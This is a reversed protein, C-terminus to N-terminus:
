SIKISGEEEKDQRAIVEQFETFALALGPFKNVDPQYGYGLPSVRHTEGEEQNPNFTKM